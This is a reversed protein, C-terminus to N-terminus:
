MSASSVSGEYHTGEFHDVDESDEFSVFVDPAMETFKDKLNQELSDHAETGLQERPIVLRKLKPFNNACVLVLGEIMEVLRPAYENIKLEDLNPPLVDKLDEFGGVDNEDWGILASAPVELVTLSTFERLEPGLPPVLGDDREPWSDYHKRTDLRLKTLTDKHKRLNSRLIPFNIEVWGVSNGAWDCDLVEVAKCADLMQSVGIPCISSRVFTLESVCSSGIPCDFDEFLEDEPEFCASGTVKRLNPLLFFTAISSLRFGGQGSELRSTVAYLTTLNQLIAGVRIKPFLISLILHDFVFRPTEDASTPNELYLTKLNPVLSILLAAHAEEHKTMEDRSATSGTLLDRAAHLFLLTDHHDLSADYSGKAWAAWSKMDWFSTSPAPDRLVITEVRQALEPRRIMTRIASHLRPPHEYMRHTIKRYLFPLAIRYLRKSSLACNYLASTDLHLIFKEVLEDPFDHLSLSLLVASGM